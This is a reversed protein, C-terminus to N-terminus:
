WCLKRTGRVYMLVGKHYTFAQFSNFKPLPGLSLFQISCPGLMGLFAPKVAILWQPHCQHPNLNRQTGGPNSDWKWTLQWTNGDPQYMIRLRVRLGPPELGMPPGLREKHQSTPQMLKYEFGVQHRTPELRVQLHVLMACQSIHTQTRGQSRILKLRSLTGSERHRETKTDMTSEGRHWTRTQDSCSFLDLSFAAEKSQHFKTQISYQTGTTTDTEM